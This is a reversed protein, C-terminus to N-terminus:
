HAMLSNEQGLPVPIADSNEIHLVARLRKTIVAGTVWPCDVSLAGGLSVMM